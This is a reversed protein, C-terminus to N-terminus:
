DSSESSSSSSSNKINMTLYPLTSLYEPIKLKKCDEITLDKLSFLDDPMEKLKECCDLTLTTLSTLNASIKKLSPSSYIWLTQLSNFDGTIAQLEECCDLKLSTLFKLNHLQKFTGFDITLSTIFEPIEPSHDLDKLNLSIVTFNENIMRTINECGILSVSTLCTLTNPLKTLKKCSSVELDTLSTLTNSLEVLEACGHLKLKTLFPSNIDLKKIIFGKLSASTLSILDHPLEQKYNHLELSTLSSNIPLHTLEECHGLSISKLKLIDTPLEELPMDSKLFTLLNLENPIKKIKTAIINLYELSTLHNSLKAMSHCGSITLSILNTLKPVKELSYCGHLNLSTLNVLKPIKELNSPLLNGNNGYANITFTLTQLSFLDEPLEKLETFNALYLSTLRCLGKPFEEATTNYVDLYLTKLRNGALPLSPISLNCNLKYNSNKRFTKIILHEISTCEELVQKVSEDEINIINTFNAVINQNNKIHDIAEISTQFKLHSQLIIPLYTKAMLSYMVKSTCALSSCNKVQKTDYFFYNKEALIFNEAFYRFIDTPLKDIKYSSTKETRSCNTETLYSTNVSEIMQNKIRKDLIQTKKRLPYNLM